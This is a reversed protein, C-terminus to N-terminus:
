TRQTPTSASNLTFTRVATTGDAAYLTLTTGSLVWKGFGQARAANLADGVTGATNSAPVAQDLILSVSGSVPSIQGTGTGITPLGGAAAPAAAPLNAGSTLVIAPGIRVGATTSSWTLAVANAATEAQELPQWYIGHGVEDPHATTTAAEAGGDKSVRGTINAADGTKPANAATDYAFLYLGQGGTNKLLM